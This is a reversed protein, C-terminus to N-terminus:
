MNQLKERFVECRESGPAYVLDEKWQDCEKCPASNKLSVVKLNTEDPFNRRIVKKGKRKEGSLVPRENLSRVDTRFLLGSSHKM